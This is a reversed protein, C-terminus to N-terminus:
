RKLIEDLLNEADKLLRGLGRTDRDLRKMASRIRALDFSESTCLGNSWTRATNLHVFAAGDSHEQEALGIDIGRETVCVNRGTKGFNRTMQSGRIEVSWVKRAKISDEIHTEVTKVREHLSRFPELKMRWFKTWLVGYWPLSEVPISVAPRNRIIRILSKAEQRETRFREKMQENLSDSQSILKAVIPRDDQLKRRHSELGPVTDGLDKEAMDELIEELARMMSITDGDILTMVRIPREEWPVLVNVDPANTAGWRSAAERAGTWMSAVTAGAWQATAEVKNTLRVFFFYLVIIISLVALLGCLIQCLGWNFHVPLSQGPYGDRRRSNGGGNAGQDESAAAHVNINYNITTQHTSHDVRGDYTFHQLQFREASHVALERNGEDTTFGHRELLPIIFNQIHGDDPNSDRRRFRQLEMGTAPPQPAVPAIADPSADNAEM